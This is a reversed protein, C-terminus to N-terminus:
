VAGFHHTFKDKEDIKEKNENTTVTRLVGEGVRGWQPLSGTEGGMPLPNPPPNQHPNRCVIEEPRRHCMMPLGTVLM